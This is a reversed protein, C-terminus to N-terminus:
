KRKKGKNQPLRDYIQTGVFLVILTGAFALVLPSEFFGSIGGISERITRVGLLAIGLFFLAGLIFEDVFPIPDPILIDIFLLITIVVWGYFLIDTGFNAPKDILFWIIDWINM